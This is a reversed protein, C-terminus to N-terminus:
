EPARQSRNEEDLRKGATVRELKTWAEELLTHDRESLRREELSRFLTGAQELLARQMDPPLERRLLNTIVSFLHLAVDLHDQCTRRLQDFAANVLQVHSLTSRLLRPRGQGDRLVAPAAGRRALIGLVNGLRDICSIATFPDNIGPSLARLAVEVLQYVGHAPDQSQTRLPGIVLSQRLQGAIDEALGESAAGMRGLRMLVDGRSVYEGPMMELRMCLDRQTALEVLDEEDV